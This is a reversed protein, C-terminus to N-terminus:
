LDIKPPKSGEPKEEPKEEPKQVIKQLFTEVPLAPGFPDPGNGIISAIKSAQEKSLSMGYCAVEAISKGIHRVLNNGTDVGYKPEKLSKEFIKTGLRALFVIQSVCIIKRAVDAFEPKFFETIMDNRSYHPLNGTRMYPSTDPGLAYAEADNWRKMVEACRKKLAELDYEHRLMSTDLGNDAIDGIIRAYFGEWTHVDSSRKFLANLSHRPIFTETLIPKGEPVELLRGEADLHMNHRNAFPIYTPYSGPVAKHKEQGNKERMNKEYTLLHEMAERPTRAIARDNQRYEYEDTSVDYSIIAIMWGANSYSGTHERAVMYQRMQPKDEMAYDRTMIWREDGAPFDKVDEPVRRPIKMLEEESKGFWNFIKKFM